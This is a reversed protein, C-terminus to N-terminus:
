SSELNKFQYRGFTLNIERIRHCVLIVRRALDVLALTLFFPGRKSLGLASLLARARESQSAKVLNVRSPSGFHKYM